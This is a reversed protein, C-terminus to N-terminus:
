DCRPALDIGEIALGPGFALLMAPLPEGNSIAETLVFLVTASSMNGFRRLISRASELRGEGPTAPTTPLASEIADLIGPGGPHVVLTRPWASGGDAGCEQDANDAVGASAGAVFSRVARGLAEPVDRSLTMAFGDDGIRWSIWDRGEPVLRSHGLTLEGIVAPVRGAADRLDNTVVAAAAGDAFLSAAVLNEPDPDNRLHLSCLEVCVVLAVANRDAACAGVAARLGTIAGYCGMFGIM